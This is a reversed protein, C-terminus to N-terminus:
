AFPSLCSWARVETRARMQASVRTTLVRLHPTAGAYNEGVEVLPGPAVTPDVLTLVQCPRAGYRYVTLGKVGARWASLYIERVDHVM